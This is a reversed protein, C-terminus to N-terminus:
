SLDTWKLVKLAQRDEKALYYSQPKGSLFFFLEHEMKSLFLEVCPDGGPPKWTPKPRFPPIKSFDNSPKDRFYWKCRMKRGFENFDRRLDAENIM